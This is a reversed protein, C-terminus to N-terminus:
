VARQRAAYAAVKKRNGCLTMSCWRRTGKKSNDHFHLVCGLCQRVRARDHRTFLMAASYAIPAFLDEPAHADFYTEIVPAGDSTKLRTLMPHAAMQRSIEAATSRRLPAGSEWCVIQGRLEERFLIMTDFAARAGVTSGWSLELAAAQRATLLSAARFWRLLAAFDPLLETAKGDIVPRTNVLDLAHENGLFLFGDRWITEDNRGGSRTM